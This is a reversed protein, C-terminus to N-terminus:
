NKTEHPIVLLPFILNFGLERIVSISFLRELFHRKLRLMALLDTNNKFTFDIIADPIKNDADIHFQCPIGKLIDELSAKHLLQGTNLEQGGSVYLVDIQSRHQKAIEMMGRLKEKQYVIEYDTPLLIRKPVKYKFDSPVALIPCGSKKIVHITNTGFLIDAAGTAGQTGMIVIDINEKEIIKKIEAVLSNFACHPIFLHKPNKFKKSIHKQLEAMQALSSEQNADKHDTQGPNFEEMKDHYASPTFTNLLYFACEEKKYLNLAYSIANFANESFDTPLIIKKMKKM